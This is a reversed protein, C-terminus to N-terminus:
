VRQVHAGAPHNLPMIALVRLGASPGIEMCSHDGCFVAYLCGFEGAMSPITIRASM